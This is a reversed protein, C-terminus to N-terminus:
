RVNKYRINEIQQDPIPCRSTVIFRGEKEYHTSTKEADAVNLCIWELVFIPFPYDNLDENIYVFKKQFMNYYHM